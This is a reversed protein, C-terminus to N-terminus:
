TYCCNRKEWNRAWERSRSTFPAFVHCWTPFMGNRILIYVLSWVRWKYYNRVEFSDCTKIALVKYQWVMFIFEVHILTAYRSLHATSLGLRRFTPVCGWTAWATWVGACLQVSRPWRSRQKLNVCASAPGDSECSRCMWYRCLIIFFKLNFFFFNHWFWPDFLSLLSTLIKWFQM